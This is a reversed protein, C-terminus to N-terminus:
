LESILKIRQFTEENPHHKYERLARILSSKRQWGLVTRLRKAPGGGILLYQTISTVNSTRRKDSASEFDVIRPVDSKEVLVNKPAESLEGHDLSIRDLSYCDDLLKAIIRRVRRKCGTRPLLTVWRNLPLGKILEMVLFNESQALLRPGVGVTNALRLMDAEHSMDQRDADVRRIKLAVAKGQMLAKVVIGVCGKGLVRAHGVQHTGSLEVADVAISALEQM